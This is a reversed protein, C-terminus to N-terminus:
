SLCALLAFDRLTACIIAYHLSLVALGGMFLCYSPTWLNKNIPIITNLALGAVAMATGAAPILWIKM